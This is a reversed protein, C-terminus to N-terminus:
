KMELTMEVSRKQNNRLYIQAVHARRLQATDEAFALCANRQVGRPLFCLRGFARASTIEVWLIPFTSLVIGVSCPVRVSALLLFAVGCQMACSALTCPVLPANREVWKQVLQISRTEDRACSLLIPRVRASAVHTIASRHASYLIDARGRGSM